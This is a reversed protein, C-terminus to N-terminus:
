PGARTIQAAAIEMFRDAIREADLEPRAANARALASLRAHLAEDGLVSEVARAWDEAPAEPALLLGGDGLAEPIGGVSSAIVPIGNAHAEVVVRGFAEEWLSPVVVVSARSYVSRMEPTRRLYTVNPVARIRRDNEQALKRPLVWGEVFQFRRHPLLHAVELMKDLGKEYVPNIFTVLEPTVHEALIDAQRISPYVVEPQLGFREAARSATFRSNCILGLLPSAPLPRDLWRYSNDVVSALVPIGGDVALTAATAIEELAAVVLDPQFAAMRDELLQAFRGDLARYTPYGNRDDRYALARRGFWGRWRAASRRWGPAAVAVAECRVGRGTITQLLTHASLQAGGRREPVFPRGLAFLIRM